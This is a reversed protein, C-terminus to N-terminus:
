NNRGSWGSGVEREDQARWALRGESLGWWMVREKRSSRVSDRKRGSGEVLVCNERVSQGLLCQVASKRIEVTCVKRRSTKDSLERDGQEEM